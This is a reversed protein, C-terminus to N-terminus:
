PAVTMALRSFRRDRGINADDVLVECPNGTTSFRVVKRVRPPGNSECLAIVRHFETPDPVAHVFSDCMTEDCRDPLPVRLDGAGTTDTIAYAADRGDQMGTWVVRNTTGDDLASITRLVVGDRPAVFPPMDFRMRAWPDVEVAAYMDSRVALLRGPNVPSGTMSSVSLGLPFAGDNLRWRDVVATGSFTWVDRLDGSTSVATFAIAVRTSGEPARLLFSDTPRNPVEAAPLLVTLADTDPDVAQVADDGAVIVRGDPARVATWPQQIMRGGGTLDGCRHATTEPYADLQFRLVSGPHPTTSALNEVTVLLQPFGCPGGTARGGDVRPVFADARPVSGDPDGVVQLGELSPPCGTTLAAALAVFPVRLPWAPRHM